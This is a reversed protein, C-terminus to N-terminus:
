KCSVVVLCLQSGADRVLVSQWLVTAAAFALIADYHLYHRIFFLPEGAGSRGAQAEEPHLRERAEERAAAAVAAKDGM